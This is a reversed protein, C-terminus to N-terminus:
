ASNHIDKMRETSTPISPILSHLPCPALHFAYLVSGSNRALHPPSEKLFCPATTEAELATLANKM